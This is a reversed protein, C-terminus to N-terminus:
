LRHQSKALRGAGDPWEWGAAEARASGLLLGDQIVLVEDGVRISSDASIVNSSFLNGKWDIESILEAKPLANAQLLIPLCAKSFAFRGSRPNWKAIQENDKMITFIPPRGKVVAGKLWSDTDHQFRSLARLQSLTNQSKKLSSLGLDEKAEEVAERLRDLSEQSGASEGNRTDVVETGEISFDVGSHNIIRSYGVRSCLRVLMSQIVSLEDADWDGTVPIDYNAAPWIEELERPVLGLPATVMVQHSANTPISLLFRRHSQSTRYPKVASCPLLVLLKRQHEPPMHSDAVRNRWDHILPDDRSQYTHCRLKREHGVVRELGSLGGDFSRMMADHRRLREVSRPSSTSQREALERLSGNRIASRTAAIAREWAAIQTSMDCSEGLTGEPARPGDETLIIGQSTARRSRALDFLDAGMWSLLACNDPGGIGPTWLLSNPFRTRLNYLASVLSGPSHALQMSDVLCVVSPQLQPNNLMEDQHLSQWSVAILQDGISFEGSNSEALSPPLVLGETAVWSDKSDFPLCLNERSVLTISAPLNESDRTSSFPAMSTALEPDASCSVLGPTWGAPETRDGLQMVRALRQRVAVTRALPRETM